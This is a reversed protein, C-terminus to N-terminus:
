PLLAKEVRAFTQELLDETIEVAGKERMHALARIPGATMAHVVHAYLPGKQALDADPFHTKVMEAEMRDKRAETEPTLASSAEFQLMVNAAARHDLHWRAMAFWYARLREAPSAAPDVAAKVAGIYQDVVELYLENILEQKTDFYTFLTGSAVGAKKAIASTSVNQLGDRAFLEVAADLLAARKDAVDGRSHDSTSLPRGM